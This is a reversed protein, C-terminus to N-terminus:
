MTLGPSFVPYLKMMMMLVLMIIMLVMMIIMFVMMPVHLDDFSQHFSTGVYLHWIM